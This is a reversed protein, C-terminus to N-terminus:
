NHIFHRVRPSYKGVKRLIFGTCSSFGMWELLRRVKDFGFRYPSHVSLHKVVEVLEFGAGEFVSQWYRRGFRSFEIANTPSAGHVPPWLNRRWFTSRPKQPNNGRGGINKVSSGTLLEIIALFQSFYFLGLHLVKWFRNPVVHIMIGNDRLVRSMEMFTQAPDPLHELLNSSYILDFENNRYPLRKADCVTCTIKHNSHCVLREPNIDTSVLFRTYRALLQSQFGDGAGLELVRVFIDKPVESFIAEIERRRITRRLETSDARLRM